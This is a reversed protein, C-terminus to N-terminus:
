GHSFSWSQSGGLNQAIAQQNGTNREFAATLDVMHERSGGVDLEIKYRAIAMNGDLQDLVDPPTM